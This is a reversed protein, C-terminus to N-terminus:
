LFVPVTGKQAKIILEDLIVSYRIVLDHNLNNTDKATQVLLLRVNEIEQHLNIDINM